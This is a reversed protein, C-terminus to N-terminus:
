KLDLLKMMRNAIETNELIGTFNEAGPGFAFVPVMVASHHGTAFGGKVIKNEIDGGNIAFGGTEHDATVIILTEKNSAAFELAKGISQDFDLMEETIYITNNQHGGWDIQSGEVMLFFGKHNQSLLDIVKETAKPLLGKREPARGNHEPATLGVLKGETFNEIQDISRLVTYDKAELEEVLNRGDKRETFHKYGGGVFVDIDTKLFDAAIEEYMNRSSQHAIFSAPTAHTIASSSVLGTALGDKEALELVTPHSVTDGDVGIAGNYTKYGSSLATGGAASDTIYNSASQTKSFGVHKFNELFLHGGNATLGAFVQATGMGDGIMLIINKPKKNNFSDEYKIVEYNSTGKFVKVSDEKTLTKYNEQAYVSCTMIISLIFTVIKKM